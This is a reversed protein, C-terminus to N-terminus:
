KTVQPSIWTSVLSRIMRSAEGPCLEAVNAFGALWRSVSMQTCHALVGRLIRCQDSGPEELRLITETGADCALEAPFEIGLGGESWNRLQGVQTPSAQGGALRDAVWLSARVPRSLDVDHRPHKRRNIALIESPRQIIIADVRRSPRLRFQCHGLVTTRAQLAFGGVPFLMGLDWGTPVFVKRGKAQPVALVLGDGGHLGLFRSILRRESSPTVPKLVLDVRARRAVAEVFSTASFERRQQEMM